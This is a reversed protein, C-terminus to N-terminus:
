SWCRQSEAGSPGGSRRRRAARGLSRAPEITRLEGYAHELAVTRVGAAAPFAPRRRSPASEGIEANM